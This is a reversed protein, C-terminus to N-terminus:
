GDDVVTVCTTVLGDSSVTEVGQCDDGEALMRRQGSSQSMNPDDSIIM